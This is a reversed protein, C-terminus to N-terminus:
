MKSIINWCLVWGSSSAIHCIYAQIFFIQLPVKVHLTMSSLYVPHESLLFAVTTAFAHCMFFFILDHFYSCFSHLVPDWSDSRLHYRRLFMTALACTVLELLCVKPNGKSLSPQMATPPSHLCQVILKSSRTTILLHLHSPCSELWPSCIIINQYRYLNLYVITNNAIFM